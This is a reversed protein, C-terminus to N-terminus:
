ELIKKVRWVRVEGARLFDGGGAALLSGDPSFILANLKPSKVALQAVQQGSQTDWIRVTRDQAASGLWRGNPSFAVSRVAKQHGAITRRLSATAVDWLRVKSDSSAIAITRSDPSFAIGSASVRNEGPQIDERAKWIHLEKGSAADWVHLEGPEPLEGSAGNTGAAFLKGNPSFAISESAHSLNDFRRLQLGSKADVITILGGKYGHRGGVRSSSGSLALQSGDPTFVIAMIFPPSYEHLPTDITWLVKGSETELMATSRFGAVAILKGDPSVAVAHSRTGTITGLSGGFITESDDRTTMRSIRDDRLSTSYLRNGDPSFALDTVESQHWAFVRDEQAIVAIASLSFVLQFLAFTTATKAFTNM